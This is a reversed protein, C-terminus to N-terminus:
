EVLLSLNKATIQRILENGEFMRRARFPTLIIEAEKKDKKIKIYGKTKYYPLKELKKFCGLITKAEAKFVKDNMKLELKYM